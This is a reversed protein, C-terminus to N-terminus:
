REYVGLRLEGCGEQRVWNLIEAWDGYNGDGRARLSMGSEWEREQLWERMEERNRAGEGEVQFRNNGFVTVVWGETSLEGARVESSEGLEIEPRAETSLNSVTMFFVLLLFVMDIMPAMAFGSEMRRKRKRKM